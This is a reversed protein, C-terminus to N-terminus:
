QKQSLVCMVHGTTDTICLVHFLHLVSQERNYLKQSIMIVKGAKESRTKAIDSLSLLYGQKGRGPGLGNDKRRTRKDNPRPKVRAAPVKQRGGFFLRLRRFQKRLCTSTACSTCYLGHPVCTASRLWSFFFSFPPASGKFFPFFPSCSVFINLLMRDNKGDATVVLNNDSGSVCVQQHTPHPPRPTSFVYSICM